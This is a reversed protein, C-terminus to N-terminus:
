AGCRAGPEALLRSRGRGRGRERSMSERERDRYRQIKFFFFFSILSFRVLTEGNRFKYQEESYGKLGTMFGIRWSVGLRRFRM